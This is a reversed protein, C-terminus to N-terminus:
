RDSTETLLCLLIEPSLNEMCFKCRSKSIWTQLEWHSGKNALTASKKRHRKIKMVLCNEMLKVKGFQSNLNAMQQMSWITKQRIKQMRQETAFSHMCNVHLCCKLEASPVALTSKLIHIVSLFVHKKPFWIMFLDKCCSKTPMLTSILCRLFQAWVKIKHVKKELHFYFFTVTRIVQYSLEWFAKQPAPHIHVIHGPLYFVDVFYWNMDLSLFVFWFSIRLAYCYFLRIDLGVEM